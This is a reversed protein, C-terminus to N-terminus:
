RIPTVGARSYVVGIIISHAVGYVGFPGGRLRRVSFFNVTSSDVPPAPPVTAFGPLVLKHCCVMMEGEWEKEEKRKRSRSQRGRAVFSRGANFFRKGFSANGLITKM